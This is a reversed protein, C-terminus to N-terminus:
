RSSPDIEQLAHPSKTSHTQMWGDAERLFESTSAIQFQAEALMWDYREVVIRRSEIRLLNFSNSEGRERTSTATGAQIVLAAQKLSPYNTTTNAAHSVHHHGALLLDVNLETLVPMLVHADGVLQSKKVTGAVDLPHHTVIIRVATERASHWTQKLHEVQDQNIRGDKITLSRATNIGAVAIEDDIYVPDLTECIYRRYRQLPDFFRRLPNHLPIDHNGPVVLQPMPLAALFARAEEFEITRARQTLDGSVVVLDPHMAHICAILPAILSQDIRGFHLDSLHVLTRM